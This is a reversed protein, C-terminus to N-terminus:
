RRAATANFGSFVDMLRQFVRERRAVTEELVQVRHVLETMATRDEAYLPASIANGIQAALEDGPSAGGSSAGM